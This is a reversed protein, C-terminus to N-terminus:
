CAMKQNKSGKSSNLILHVDRYVSEPRGLKYLRAEVYVSSTSILPISVLQNWEEHPALVVSPWTNVQAGNVALTVRYTVSTAEFSQVGIRVACSNTSQNSPLMWLQTFDAQTASPRIASFWIAVAAVVIALGILVCNYITIRLRPIREIKVQNRRRLYAAILTFVTIVLGLSLTWSLSGLGIPFVNLMFGIIVDITMSLGLSLIIHDVASIPQGIKLSPRLILSSSPAPSQRCLLAQTLTYGPLVFILPVALIVGIILPRSPLQTWGVNIIVLLIVGILDFNKLRM